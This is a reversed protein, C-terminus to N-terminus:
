TGTILTLIISIFSAIGTSLWNVFNNRIYFKKKGIFSFLSTEYQKNQYRAGIYSDVLCGLFGIISIIVFSTFGYASNVGWFLLGIFLSGIIGAMTGFFSVGGHTGPEVEKGTTILRTKHEEERHGIETAWTDSTATAIVTVAGVMFIESNTLYWIVIWLAFWFGNAWVQKGERRFKQELVGQQPVPNKSLVSGSIFFALLVIAASLGGLGFTIIGLIAAAFAGDISLWNFIFSINSILVALFFALLIQRHDAADGLLIFILILVLSFFINIWRDLM